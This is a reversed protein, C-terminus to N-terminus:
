AASRIVRRRLMAVGAAGLMLWWIPDTPQDFAGLTCGGGGEGKPNTSAIYVALDSLQDSKVFGLQGMGGKNRQIASLTSAPNTAKAIHEGGNASPGHCGLCMGDYVAKGREIATSQTNATNDASIYAAIDDLQTTSLNFPLWTAASGMANPFKTIAGQIMTASVGSSIRALGTAPAPGHCAQCYQVYLAKGNTANGVPPPPTTTGGNAAIDAAIYASINAVDASTLAKVAADNAMGRLRGVNATNAIADTLVQLTAGLNVKSIGGVAPTTGVVTDQHCIACAADYSTKGAVLDPTATQAMAGSALALAAAGLATRAMSVARFLRNVM